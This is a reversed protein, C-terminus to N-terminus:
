NYLKIEDNLYKIINIGTVFIRNICKNKYFKLICTANFMAKYQPKYRYQTQLTYSTEKPEAKINLVTLLQDIEARM